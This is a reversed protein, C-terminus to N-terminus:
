RPTWFDVFSTVVANFEDPHERYPSHGAQNFIYM